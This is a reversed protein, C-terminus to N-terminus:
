STSEQPAEYRGHLFATRCEGRAVKGSSTRPVTAPPVLVLRELRLGHVIAVRSRVAGDLEAREAGQPTQDRRREAVAVVQEGREGPVSFVAIRENRYAGLAARITEEVDQPYHNRGNVILLDKLRGSVLLRGEHIAGLDGTRLWPKDGTGHVLTEFTEASEEGRKWYGLAVNPGRVAIEGVAGDPLVSRTRPDIIRLEQGVPVGCSMLTTVTDTGDPHADTALAVPEIHGEVLRDRLCAVTVPLEDGVGTTVFVTAEALGYSPRQAEPRLGVPGFTQQFRDVTRPMVPESGNVLMKVRDLRLNGMRAHDFKSVCYDYAFNPAASVAGAYQGLLRLWREPKQLFAVPDMLVSPIGGVIPAVIALMLGMDHYLPLWSVTTLQPLPTGFCALAQLANAVVNRHSIMVGVPARTSGSTYQL